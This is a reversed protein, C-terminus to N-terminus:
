LSSLNLANSLRQIQQVIETAACLVMNPRASINHLADCGAPHIAKV